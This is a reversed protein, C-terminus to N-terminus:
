KSGCEGYKVLESCIATMDHYYTRYNAVKQGYGYSPQQYGVKHVPNNQIPSFLLDKGYGAAVGTGTPLSLYWAPVM